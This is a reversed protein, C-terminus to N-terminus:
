RSKLFLKLIEEAANRPKDELLRLHHHLRNVKETNFKDDDSIYECIYSDFPSTKLEEEFIKIINKHRKDNQKEEWLALVEKTEGEIIQFVNRESYLFVGKINRKEYKEQTAILLKLIEEKTFNLNSNSLYCIAHRM